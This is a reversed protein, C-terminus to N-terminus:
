LATQDPIYEDKSSFYEAKNMNKKFQFTEMMFAVHEQTFPISEMMFAVHEQTFPISEMM